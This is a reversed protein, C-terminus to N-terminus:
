VWFESFLIALQDKWIQNFKFIFGTPSRGMVTRTESQNSKQFLTNSNFHIESKLSRSTLEVRIVIRTRNLRKIVFFTRPDCSTFVNLHWYKGCYAQM